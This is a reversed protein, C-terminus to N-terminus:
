ARRLNTSLRSLLDVWAELRWLGEWVQDNTSGIFNETLGLGRGTGGSGVRRCGLVGRCHRPEQM